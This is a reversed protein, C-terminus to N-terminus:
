RLRYFCLLWWAYQQKTATKQYTHFIVAMISAWTDRIIDKREKGSKIM